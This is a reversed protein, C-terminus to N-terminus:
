SLVVPITLNKEYEELTTNLNTKNFIFADKAIAFALSCPNFSECFMHNGYSGVSTRINHTGYPLSAECCGVGSCEGDMVGGLDMCYTMCGVWYPTENKYGKIWAKTDCGIAVLKNDDASVTFNGASLSVSLQGTSMGSENYCDYSMNHSVTIKGHISHKVGCTEKCRPKALKYPAVEAVLRLVAAAVIFVVVLQDTSGLLRM